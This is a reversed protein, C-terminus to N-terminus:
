PKRFQAADIGLAKVWRYVQMRPKGLRQAVQSINGSCDQFLSLLEDRRAVAPHPKSSLTSRAEPAQSPRLGQELEPAHAILDSLHIEGQEARLAAVLEILTRLERVNRPWHWRMLAETANATFRTGGAFQRALVMIEDRRNRLPPLRLVVQALRGHLDGRFRGSAVAGALDVHTACIVRVDVAFEQDSGVPRVRGEELVRLLSAQLELPMDGIEDLFLSGHDAARFLGPRATTAGSFAGRTHGFLEAAILEKSLTACNVAIFPGQRGSQDHISRAMVEKGTGSEGQLLVTFRTTACRTAMAGVQRQANETSVVLISDGARIVAGHSLGCHRIETGDVRTHNTSGLDACAMEGRKTLVLFHQKSLRPDRICVHAETGRGVVLSQTARLSIARNVWAPDPSEVVTLTPECGPSHSRLSDNAPDETDAASLTIAFADPSKHMSSGMVSKTMNGSAGRIQGSNGLTDEPPM